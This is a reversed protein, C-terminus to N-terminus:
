FLVEPAILLQYAFPAPRHLPGLDNYTFRQRSMALAAGTSLQVAFHRSLRLRILVSLEPGWVYAGGSKQLRGGFGQGDVRYLAAGLCPMLDVADISWARCGRAAVRFMRFFAGVNMQGYSVTQEAYYSGSIEWRLNAIGELAISMGAGWAVNPLPGIVAIGYASLTLQLRKGTIDNGASGDGASLAIVLAVSEALMDCQPDELTREGVRQQDRFRLVARYGNKRKTVNVTASL